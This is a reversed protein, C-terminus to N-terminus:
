ITSEEMITGGRPKRISDVLAQTKASPAPTILSVVITVIFAVPLGILGSAINRIGWWNAMTQMHADLDAVSKKAAAAATEAVKKAAEVADGTAATAADTAAKAADAALPIAAQLDAMKKLAAEGANSLFSWTTYFDAAYYRTGFM